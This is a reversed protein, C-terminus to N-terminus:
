NQRIQSQLLYHFSSTSASTYDRLPDVRQMVTLCNPYVSLHGMTSAMIQSPLSCMEASKLDWCASLSPMYISRARINTVCNLKRSLRILPLQGLHVREDQCFVVDPSHTALWKVLILILMLSVYHKPLLATFTSPLM